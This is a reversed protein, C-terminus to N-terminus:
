LYSELIGLILIKIRGAVMYLYPFCFYTRGKAVNHHSICLKSCQIDFMVIRYHFIYYFLYLLVIRDGVLAYIQQDRAQLRM